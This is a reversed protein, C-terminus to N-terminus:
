ELSNSYLFEAVDLNDNLSAIDLPTHCNIDRSVLSAGFVVLLRVIQLHGLQAAMHLPTFAMFNKVNVDAGKECLVETVQLHGYKVAVYLSTELNNNCYDINTGYSLLDTMVYVANYRAAYHLATDGNDDNASLDPDYCMLLQYCKLHNHQIAVMLPTQNDYNSCDVIQPRCDLLLTLLETDAIRVAYHLITNGETDCILINTHDLLLKVVHLNRYLAASFLPTCLNRNYSDILDSKINILFKVLETDGNRCAHHLINDGYMDCAEIDAYKLLLKAVDWNGNAAAVLLPTQENINPINVIDGATELLYSVTGADANKAAHHLVNEGYEDSASLDAYPSLLKVINWKEKLAAVLLPTLNSSNRTDIIDEAFELIESVIVANSFRAAVHMINDGYMNQVAPDHNLQLLYQILNWKGIKAALLLPTNGYKDCIKVSAGRQVLLKVVQLQGFEAAYLLATKEDIGAVTDIDSVNELIFEVLSVQGYVSSLHLMFLELKYSESVLSIPYWVDISCKLMFSVLHVLGHKSSVRLVEQVYVSNINEKTLVMDNCDVGKELLIDVIPWAQIREALRLPRWCLVNDEVNTDAGHELLLTLIMKTVSDRINCFDYHSDELVAFYYSGDDYKRLSIDNMVALHLATRGGKDKTNVDVSKELLLNQVSALDQNLVAIHLECNQALFNDFFSRIVRFNPDLLKTKFYIGLNKCNQAFWMAAFYESITRHAFLAKDNNVYVVIGTKEFGEKFKEIFIKNNEIIEHSNPINKVEDTGLLNVVACSMYQQQFKDKLNRYNESVGVKTTDIENKEFYVEWKKDVFRNYLQFLNIKGPLRIEGTKGFHFVDSQFIEALMRIQLPIGTFSILNDDLSKETIKLLETIFGKLDYLFVNLEKWFKLLYEEQDNETFPKLIFHLSCLEQELMEQMVPRSTVWIKKIKTATLEKLINIIKLSYDPSIEDFGDFIVIMNGRQQLEQVFVSKLFTTNLEEARLLLEVAEPQDQSLYRTHENLNVRVVWTASDAQKTELALHSLETSKGMGPEAVILVVQQLQDTISKLSNYPIFEAEHVLNQIITNIDGKSKKWLFQDGDKHIWHIDNSHESLKSFDSEDEIIFYRCGIKPSIYRCGNQVSDNRSYFEQVEEGRPVLKQLEYTTTGSVAFITHGKKSFLLRKQVIERRLFKRPIYCVDRAALKKGIKMKKDGTMLETVINATITNLSESDYVPILSRLSVCFGQFDVECQLIKDQSKKDLQTLSFTDNYIQGNFQECFQKMVSNMNREVLILEKEPSGTLVHGLHTTIDEIRSGCDVVLVECWKGRRWLALIEALHTKLTNGDVLMHGVASLNQHFKVCSLETAGETLILTVKGTTNTGGTNHFQLGSFRALKNNIHVLLDSIHTIMIDDWFPAYSDTLLYCGNRWWEVIGDRLTCFMEQARTGSIGCFSELDKMVTVELEKEAAQQTYIKLKDMFEEWSGQEWLILQQEVREAEVELMKNIDKGNKLAEMLQSCNSLNQFPGLKNQIESVKINDTLINQLESSYSKLSDLTKYFLEHLESHSKFTIIQGCPTGSWILDETSYDVSTIDCDKKCDLYTNTYIFFKCDDFSGGFMVNEAQSSFHKKIECYSNYYKLLSFEGQPARLAQLTLPKSSKYKLQLFCTQEVKRNNDKFIFILDDFAGANEINTAIRFGDTKFMGRLFLMAATNVEFLEGAMDAAGPRRCYEQLKKPDPSRFHFAADRIPGPNM